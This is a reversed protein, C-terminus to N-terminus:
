PFLNQDLLDFVSLIRPSVRSRVSKVIHKLRGEEQAETKWKYVPPLLTLGVQLM